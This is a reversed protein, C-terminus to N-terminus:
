NPVLYGQILATGNSGEANYDVPTVGSGFRIGATFQERGAMTGSADEPVFAAAIIKTPNQLSILYDAAYDGPKGVTLLAAFEWDTVILTYGSPVVYVSTSNDGQPSITFCGLSGPQCLLSVLQSENQGMHTTTGPEIQVLAAAIAHATKPAVIAVLLAITLATGLIALAQKLLTM